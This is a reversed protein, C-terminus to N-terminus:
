PFQRNFTRRVALRVVDHVKTELSTEVPAPRHGVVYTGGSAPRPEAAVPAAAPVEDSADGSEDDPEDDAVPAMPTGRAEAASRLDIVSGAPREDLDDDIGAHDLGGQDLEPTPEVDDAEPEDVLRSAHELDALVRARYREADRRTESAWEAAERRVANAEREARRRIDAAIRRAEALVADPSRYTSRGPLPDNAV